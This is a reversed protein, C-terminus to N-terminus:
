DDASDLTWILNGVIDPLNWPIVRSPQYAEQAKCARKKRDSFGSALGTFRFNLTALIGIM